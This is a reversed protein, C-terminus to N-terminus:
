INLTNKVQAFTASIFSRMLGGKPPFDEGPLPVSTYTSSENRLLQSTPFRQMALEM